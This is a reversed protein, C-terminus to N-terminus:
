HLPRIHRLYKKDIVEIGESVIKCKFLNSVKCREIVNAHQRPSGFIVLDGIDVCGVKRCYKNHGADWAEKQCDKSCYHALRCDGCKFFNAVSADERSKCCYDCFAGGVASVYNAIYNRQESSMNAIDGVVQPLRPPGELFTLRDNSMSIIGTIASSFLHLYDPSAIGMAASLFDSMVAEAGSTFPYESDVIQAFHSNARRRYSAENLENCNRFMITARAVMAMTRLTMPEDDNSSVQRLLDAADKDFLPALVESSVAFHLDFHCTLLVIKCWTSLTSFHSHKRLNDAIATNIFDNSQEKLFGFIDDNTSSVRDPLADISEAAAAVRVFLRDFAFRYKDLAGVATAVKLRKTVLAKHKQFTQESPNNAAIKQLIANMKSRVDDTRHIEKPKGGGRRKSKKGM